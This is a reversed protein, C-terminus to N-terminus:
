IIVKNIKVMFKLFVFIRLDLRLNAYLNAIYKEIPVEKLASISDHM